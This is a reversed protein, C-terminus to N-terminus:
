DGLRLFEWNDKIYTYGSYLTIAATFYMLIQSFLANDILPIEFVATFILISIAVTQVVMKVKGWNNAAIAVNKEMAVIRFSTVVFERAIIIMAVSSLVLDKEVLCLLAAIILLKDALPDLFKGLTTVQNYKRAIYGDIGDTASAIIFVALAALNFAELSSMLFYMFLPILLIRILTIKNATNLIM